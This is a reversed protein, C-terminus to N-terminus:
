RLSLVRLRTLECGAPLELEAPQVNGMYCGPIVYFTTPGRPADAAGAPSPAHPEALETAASTAIRRLTRRYTITRDAAVRVDVRQEDFGEAALRLSHPGASLELPRPVEDLRGMFYGDVYLDPWVDAGLELRLCGRPQDQTAPPTVPRTPPTPPPVTMVAGMSWPMVPYVYVGASPERGTRSEHADRAPPAATWIPMALRTRMADGATGRLPLPASGSWSPESLGIHPLPLGIPPLPAALTSPMPAVTSPPTAVRDIDSGAAPQGAHNQGCVGTPLLVVCGLILWARM